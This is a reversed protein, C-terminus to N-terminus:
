VSQFFTHAEAHKMSWLLVALRQVDVTGSRRTSCCGLATPFRGWVGSWASDDTGCLGGGERRTGSEGFVSGNNKLPDRPSISKLELANTIHHNNLPNQRWWCFLPSSLRKSNLRPNERQRKAREPSKCKRESERPFPQFKLSKDQLIWTLDCPNVRKKPKKKSEDTATTFVWRMSDLNLESPRWQSSWGCVKM